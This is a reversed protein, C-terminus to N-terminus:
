YENQKTQITPFQQKTCYLLAEDLLRETCPQRYQFYGQSTLTVYDGDVLRFRYFPRDLPKPRQWHQTFPKVKKEAELEAIINRQANSNSYREQASMTRKTKVKFEYDPLALVKVM